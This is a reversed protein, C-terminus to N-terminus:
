YRLFGQREEFEETSVEGRAYRDRLTLVAPDALGAVQGAAPATLATRRSRAMAVLGASLLVMVTLLALPWGM